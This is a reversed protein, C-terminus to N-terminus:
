YTQITQAKPPCAIIRYESQPNRLRVGYPKLRRNLQSVIVHITKEGPAIAYAGYLLTRLEQTSRPRERVADYVRRQYPSLHLKTQSPPIVQGCCACRKVDEM